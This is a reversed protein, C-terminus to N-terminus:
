KILHELTRIHCHHASDLRPDVPRIFLRDTIGLPDLFPHDNWSVEPSEDRESNERIKLSFYFRFHPDVSSRRGCLRGPPSSPGVMFTFLCATVLFYSPLLCRSYWEPTNETPMSYVNLFEQSYGEGDPQM